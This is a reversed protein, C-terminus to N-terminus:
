FHQCFYIWKVKQLFPATEQQELSAPGRSQLLVQGALGGAEGRSQGCSQCVGLSEEQCGEGPDAGHLQIAQVNNQVSVM